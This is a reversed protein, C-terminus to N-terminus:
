RKESQSFAYLSNKFDAGTNLGAFVECTTAPAFLLRSYECAVAGTVDDLHLKDLVSLMM